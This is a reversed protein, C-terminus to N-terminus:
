GWRWCTEQCAVGDIATVKPPAQRRPWRRCAPTAYAAQALALMGAIASAAPGVLSLPPRGCRGDALMGTEAIAALAQRIQGLRCTALRAAVSVHDKKVIKKASPGKQYKVRV